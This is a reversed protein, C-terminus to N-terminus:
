EDATRDETTSFDTTIVHHSRESIKRQVVAPAADRM